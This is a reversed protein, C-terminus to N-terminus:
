WGYAAFQVWDSPPYVFRNELREPMYRGYMKLTLMECEVYSLAKLAVILDDVKEKWEATPKFQWELPLPLRQWVVNSNRWSKAEPGSFM